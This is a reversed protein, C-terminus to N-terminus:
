GCGVCTYLGNKHNDHFVGCFASETGHTRTITYQEATLRAQWAEDSKVVKPVTRPATLMGSEDLLRVTVSSTDSNMATPTKPSRLHNAAAVLGVGSLITTTLFTRKTM